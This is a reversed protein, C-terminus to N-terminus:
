HWGVCIYFLVTGMRGEVGMLSLIGAVVRRIKEGTKVVLFFSIWYFFARQRATDGGKVYYFFELSRGRM